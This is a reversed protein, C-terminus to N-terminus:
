KKSFGERLQINREFYLAMVKSIPEMADYPLTM